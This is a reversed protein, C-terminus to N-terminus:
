KILYTKVIPSKSRNLFNPLVEGDMRTKVEQSLDVTMRGEPCDAVKYNIKEQCKFLQFFYAYQEYLFM